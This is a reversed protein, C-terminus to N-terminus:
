EGTTPTTPLGRVEARYATASGRIFARHPVCFECPCLKGALVRWIAAGLGAAVIRLYRLAALITM